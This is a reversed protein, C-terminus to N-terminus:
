KCFCHSGKTDDIRSPEIAQLAQIYTDHLNAPLKNLVSDVAKLGICSQLANLQCDVWRFMGNAGRTLIDIIQNKAEFGHHHFTHDNQMTYDLFIGVDANVDEKDICVTKSCLQELKYAYSIHPRSAILFHLHSCALINLEEVLQVFPKFAQNEMEDLGDIIIFLSEVKVVSIVEKLTKILDRESPKSRFKEHNDYLKSLALYIEKQLTTSSSLQFLLTTVLNNFSQKFADRFDFFYFAVMQNEHADLSKVHNIIASVLVSKGSGVDGQLWLLSNPTQKWNNFDEGKLFWEGTGATRKQSFFEHSKSKHAVEIIFMCPILMTSTLISWGLIMLGASCTPLM